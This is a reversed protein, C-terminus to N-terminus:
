MKADAHKRFTWPRAMASVRSWQDPVGMAAYEGEMLFMYADQMDTSSHGADAKPKVGAKDGLWESSPANDEGVWFEMTVDKIFPTALALYAEAAAGYSWEVSAGNAQAAETIADLPTIVYSCKLSASGGGSPSPAKAAQGIVAIKKVNPQIPLTNNDNKLLVVAEGAAKRLFAKVDDGELVSEETGFDRKNDVAFKVLSLISRVNPDLDYEALKGCSIQRAIQAGRFLPPGPM